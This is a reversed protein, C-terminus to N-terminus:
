PGSGTSVRLLEALLLGVGHAELASSPRGPQDYAVLGPRIQGALERTLVLGAPEWDPLQRRLLEWRSQDRMALVRAGISDILREAVEDWSPAFRVNPRNAPRIERMPVDPQVWYTWPGGTITGGSLHLVSVESIVAPTGSTTDLGLAAVSATRLRHLAVDPVTVL